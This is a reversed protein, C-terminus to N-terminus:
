VGLAIRKYELNPKQFNILPGLKRALTRLYNLCHATHENALRDVCTLRVVLEHEVLLYAFYTGVLHGKYM